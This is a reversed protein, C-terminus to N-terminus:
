GDTKHGELVVRELGRRGRLLDIISDPLRPMELSPVDSTLPPAVEIRLEPASGGLFRRTIMSVTIKRQESGSRITTSSENNYPALRPMPRPLWVSSNELDEDVLMEQFSTIWGLERLHDESLVLLVYEEDVGYFAWLVFAREYGDKKLSVVGGDQESGDLILYRVRYHRGVSCKKLDRDSIEGINVLPYRSDLHQTRPKIRAPLSVRQFKWDDACTEYQLPGNQWLSPARPALDPSLVYLQEDARIYEEANSVRKLLLAPRALKIIAKSDM